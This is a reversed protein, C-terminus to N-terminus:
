SNFYSKEWNLASSVILELSDYQPNWDLTQRIAAANAVLCPMELAARAQRTPLPRQLVRDFVSVVDRVSAGHRLRLQTHDITKGDLLYKMGLVHADALDEVHVYDRICTGDATPFDDGFLELVSRRGM